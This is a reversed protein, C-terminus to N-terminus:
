FLACLQTEALRLGFLMLLKVDEREKAARRVQPNNTALIGERASSPM